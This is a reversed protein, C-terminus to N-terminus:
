AAVALPKLEVQYGYEELQRILRRKTKEEDRRAFYDGGLDEYAVEEKLIHYAAILITRGVAVAARKKGRRLTLRHM